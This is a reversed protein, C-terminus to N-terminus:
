KKITDPTSQNPTTPPPLFAFRVHPPLKFRDAFSLKEPLMELLVGKKIHLATSEAPATAAAERLSDAPAALLSTPLSTSLGTACAATLSSKLFERRSAERM